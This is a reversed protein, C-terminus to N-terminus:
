EAVIWGNPTRVFVWAWPIRQPAEEPCALLLKVAKKHSFARAAVRDSSLGFRVTGSLVGAGDESLVLHVHVPEQGGPLMWVHGAALYGDATDLARSVVLGDTNLSERGVPGVLLADVLREFLSECRDRQGRVAAAIESELQKLEIADWAALMMKHLAEAQRAETAWAPSSHLARKGEALSVGRGTVLAGIATIPSVGLQHLAVLADAVTPADRAVGDYPGPQLPRIGRSGLPRNTHRSM